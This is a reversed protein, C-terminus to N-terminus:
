YHFELFLHMTCRIHLDVNNKWLNSYFVPVYFNVTYSCCHSPLGLKLFRRISYIWKKKYSAIIGVCATFHRRSNHGHVLWRCTFILRIDQVLVHLVSVLSIYSLHVTYTRILSNLCFFLLSVNGEANLLAYVLVNFYCTRHIALRRISVMLNTALFNWFNEYCRNLGRWTCM